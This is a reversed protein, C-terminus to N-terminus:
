IYHKLILSKLVTDLILM